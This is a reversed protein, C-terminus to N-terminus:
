EDLLDKQKLWNLLAAQEKQDLRPKHRNQRIAYFFLDMGAGVPRLSGFSTLHDPEDSLGEVRVPGRNGTSGHLMPIMEYPSAPPRQRISLGPHGKRTSALDYVAGLKKKWFDEEVWWLTGVCTDVALYCVAKFNRIARAESMTVPDRAGSEM